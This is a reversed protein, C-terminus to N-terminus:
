FFALVRDNGFGLFFLPTVQDHVPDGKDTYDQHNRSKALEDVTGFCALSLHSGFLQNTHLKFFNLCRYLLSQSIILQIIKM